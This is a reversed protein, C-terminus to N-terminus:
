NRWGAERIAWNTFFRGAICSVETRNMPWSPGSSFPYTVWELIRPSRKHSLQYLIPGYHLLGPNSGPNPLDGQLLSHNDVITNQGSSNRSSQDLTDCLTPCSQVVKVKLMLCKHLGSGWFDCYFKQKPVERTTWSFTQRGICRDSNQGRTWSSPIWM